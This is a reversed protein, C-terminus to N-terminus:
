GLPWSWVILWTGAIAVLVSLPLGLRWYDGFRYGAPRMVLTSNQHGIPTLFDCAAGFAVAMLFPDPGFGLNKAVVAAVPGMVLVAAAHHLFPTVLMSVVLILGVALTGPLQAAVVTLGDALLKATGTDKLSEGVPILCGLMVIVPWDIAEYAERVTILRLLLIVTAAVFFGVEVNVWGATIAVLAAGLILLPLARTRPRGIALNREALPLLSLRELADGLATTRGQLVIIDGPEFRRESLRQAARRNTRVAIVNVEYTQRLHLGKPTRGILLSTPGVVAEVAELDDEKGHPRLQELQEANLLELGAQDIVPQLAAPDGQLVLVDAAFLTWHSRPVYRHSEERIIAAVSMTGEGMAELEGVTKGVMPSDDPLLVESTYDEISFRKEASRQGRRNAPLLRWGLALFAIAVVSLPLGISTYDFLGYPKGVVQQRVESILINPSTGIQTITGGILSGFALPMLYRSVPRKRQEAAQIAVPMFVGLAGVNKVFASLFTVAATLAGVQLTTSDLRRLIRRMWMEILGSVAVARSIVLVSAIIIIVPSSFGAFAKDAPVVGLLAAVSLATAGVLDYRLRDSLFLLLMGAIIALSEIQPLTM